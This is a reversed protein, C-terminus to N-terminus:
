GSGCGSGVNGDEWDTTLEKGPGAVAIAIQETSLYKQAAAQVDVATIEWILEPYRQLYDLGLGYLEMDTIVDALGSNTELGVPMSGTLYAQSDALEDAPVPENQIRAVEALVSAIARQTEEPAVGAAASWPAPGLGGPLESYAHYALGEEERVRRGIRGMMGFVGLITNMLGAHLFDPASRRPGPLGLVFDAQSKDPIAVARRLTAPPRPMDPVALPAPQQPNTWDGLVATLKDLATEARLAGVITVIMGRPGYCRSHFDALDARQVRQITDLYGRVSRGYPHGAYLLEMFALSAMRRTDHARMQLSTMIQGRAQEIQQAPFTPFRLAQALLDLVLDFDEVLSHAAVHTTHRGGGFALGAGVAELAEAIEGATRSQAGRLLLEATFDALGALEAPEALAGAPLIGELVVSESAFNEYALVVIGNPLAQRMITEPGPYRKDVM